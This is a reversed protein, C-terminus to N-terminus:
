ILLFPEEERELLKVFRDSVLRHASSVSARIARLCSGVRQCPMVKGLGEAAVKLLDGGGLPPGLLFRNPDPSPEFIGQSLTREGGDTGFVHSGPTRLPLRLPLSGGGDAVREGDDRLHELRCSEIPAVFPEGVGTSPIRSGFILGPLSLLNSGPSSSFSSPAQPQGQIRTAMMRLM